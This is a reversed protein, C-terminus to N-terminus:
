DGGSLTTQPTGEMRLRQDDYLVAFAAGYSAWQLLILVALVLFLVVGVCVVLIAAATKSVHLLSAVTASLGMMVLMLVEVASIAALAGLYLVLFVVFIRGKAGRTLEASRHMARMVPADEMLCAPVALSLRLAMWVAWVFAGLMVAVVLPWLLFLAGPHMQASYQAMVAAIGAAIGIAIMPLLIYVMRMLMLGMIRGFREQVFRYAAGATVKGGRNAEIGAYTAAAEFAAYAALLVAYAVLMFPIMGLVKGPDPPAAPKLHLLGAMGLYWFIAAYIAICIALPLLAMMLYTRYEVRMIHGVRGLLDTVGNPRPSMSSTTEPEDM